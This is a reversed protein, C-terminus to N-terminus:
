AAERERKRGRQAERALLEAGVKHLNYALVGYGAYRKFAALGSDPCRDLGHHELSNIDSEVASHRDKLRKWARGGERERDAKTGRGKKPMVVTGVLEGLRGANAASSFGEDTSLSGIMGAGYRAVLREALPVVEDSEAGGVMVKYDLVFGGRQSAILLRHGFEVPPRSKGKKVLEAHPEFLSFVKEEHPITEKDVLRRRVLDIHKDLMEMFYRTERLKARQAPTLECTEIAAEAARVRDRLDGARGLYEGTERLVRGGKNAGGRSATRECKRMAAKVEKKWYREKRLGPLGLEAALRAALEVSKRAADWLLNCDSPHHINSELVYSDARM